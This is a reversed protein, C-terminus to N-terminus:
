LVISYNIFQFFVEGMAIPRFGGIDKAMALLRSVGLVLVVLRPIDGHVVTPAVQFLELFKSSPDKLIFCGLLHKYVMM